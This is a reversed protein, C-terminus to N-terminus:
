TLVLIEDDVALGELGKAAWAEIELWADPAGEAGQRPAERPSALASRIVGIPRLRADDPAPRKKRTSM